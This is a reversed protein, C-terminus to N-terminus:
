LGYIMINNIMMSNVEESSETINGRTRSRVARFPAVWTRNESINGVTSVSVLGSAYALNYTTVESVSRTPM